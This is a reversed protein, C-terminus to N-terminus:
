GSRTIAGSIRLLLVGIKRGVLGRPLFLFVDPKVLPM